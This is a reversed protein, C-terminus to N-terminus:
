KNEEFRDLSPDSPAKKTFESITPKKQAQVNNSAKIVMIEENEDEQESLM